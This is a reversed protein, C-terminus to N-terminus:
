AEEIKKNSKIVFIKNKVKKRLGEDITALFVNQHDRLYNVIASDAYKGKVVVEEFDGAENLFKLAFDARVKIGKKGLVSLRKLESLVKDPILIKFGDMEFYEFFDVKEKVCALIFNTDLLVKKM